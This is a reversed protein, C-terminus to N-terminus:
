TRKAGASITPGIETLLSGDAKRVELRMNVSRMETAADFLMDGLARQAEAVAAADDALTLKVPDREDPVFRFTYQPM